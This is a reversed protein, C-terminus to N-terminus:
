IKRYVYPKPEFLEGSYLLNEVIKKVNPGFNRVLEELTVEEKEEIYHLVEERLTDEDLESKAKEEVKEKLFEYLDKNIKNAGEVYLREGKIKGAALVYDGVDFKGRIPFAQIIDTGDDLTFQNDDKDICIGVLIVKEDELNKAISIPYLKHM